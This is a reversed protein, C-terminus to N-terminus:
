QVTGVCAPPQVVNDIDQWTALPNTYPKSLPLYWRGDGSIPCSQNTISPVAEHDGRVNGNNTDHMSAGMTGMLMYTHVLIASRM